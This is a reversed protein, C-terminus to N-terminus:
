YDQFSVNAYCSDKIFSIWSAAIRLFEGQYGILPLEKLTRLVMFAWTRFTHCRWVTEPSWHEYCPGKQHTPGTSLRHLLIVNHSLLIWRGHISSWYYEVTNVIVFACFNSLTGLTGTQVWVYFWTTKFSICNTMAQKRSRVASNSGTGCGPMRCLNQLHCEELPYGIEERVMLLKLGDIAVAWTM